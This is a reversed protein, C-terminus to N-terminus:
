MDACGNRRLGTKMVGSLIVQNDNSEMTEEKQEWYGHKAQHYQRNKQKQFLDRGDDDKRRGGEREFFKNYLDRGSGDEDKENVCMKEM